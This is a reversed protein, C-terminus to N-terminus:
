ADLSEVGGNESLPSSTAPVFSAPPPPRQPPPPPPPPPQADDMVRQSAPVRSLRVPAAPAPSFYEEDAADLVAQGDDSEHDSTADLHGSEAGYDDMEDGGDDGGDDDDDDDDDDGGDDDNNDDHDD